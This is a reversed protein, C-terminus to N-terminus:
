ENTIRSGPKDPLSSYDRVEEHGNHECPVSRALDKRGHIFIGTSALRVCSDGLDSEASLMFEVINSRRDADIVCASAIDQFEKNVVVYLHFTKPFTDVLESLKAAWNPHLPCRTQVRTIEVGRQLAALMCEHYANATKAGDRGKYEFGEGSIVIEDQAREICKEFYSYFRQNM